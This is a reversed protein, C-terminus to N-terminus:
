KVRKGKAKRRKGAEDAPIGSGKLYRKTEKLFEEGETIAAEATEKDIDTEALSLPSKRM